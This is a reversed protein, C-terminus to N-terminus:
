VASRNKIVLYLLIIYQLVFYNQVAKILYNLFAAIKM